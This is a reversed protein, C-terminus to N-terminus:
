FDYINESYISVNFFETIAFEQAPDYCIFQENHLRLNETRDKLFEQILTISNQLESALQPSKKALNRIEELTNAKGFLVEMDESMTERMLAVGQLALNLISMIREAPNTWSQHPATRLAILMDFDGCFFLCILSIQVSGYTVRHDPGGDTYICLIPPITQPYYASIANFFETTHRIATSPQFITDKYSVFVQGDYFSEEISLPVKCIFIVSPTLSLKTFDHDCAVLNAEKLVMSKKNRVGTSTAVGEGIPVKHKDDACILCVYDRFLIAFERLYRFLCACYHSDPHEKRLLRTQIQFKVNFRGTYHIASAAIPNTPSFQLRIWEECPIQIENPLPTSFKNQLRKIIIDRLHQVSMALPM